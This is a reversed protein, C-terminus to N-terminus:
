RKLEIHGSESKKNGSFEIRYYYTGSPLETNNKSLGSFVVTTNNYDNGEWVLDGWRNFIKVNNKKSDELKDINAIFLIENKGDKNPSVANFVELEGSVEITVTQDTCASFSDCVRIGVEDTGTFSLGTYDIVLNANNDITASAGSSPQSVISLTSLDLNNDPDSILGTLDLTVVEGVTTALESTEIVPPNNNDCQTGGITLTIPARSSECGSEDVAVYYTTTTAVNPTVFSGSQNADASGGTPVTYWRYDGDAAGSATLTFSKTVCSEDDGSTTPPAPTQIATVGISTKGSQCGNDIAVYYTADATLSPTIFTSNVEGAIAIGTPDTFWRYEGDAAGSATLTAPGPTCAIAPSATPPSPPNNMTAVVATRNGECTGNNIAVYYTTNGSLVPTTYTSSTQGAIPTGLTAVTYWRYQGNVGGTASLTVSAPICGTAGTVGPAPPLPNITAVVLTRTSECTGNNIAVYYNTTGTLSPTTYTNNTQGAIPTGLTAVTYWRYQGAAAGTASLIVSGNGCRAAGTTTPPTPITNITAVVLTRTSECPGNNIAVYYNTTTTLTGTTYTANTQGAIPTGLTAVTYWRYQGAAGGAATLTVAGNGCRAGGTTTPPTPITNITAVVLTRNSECTGNNIAVYYNTTTTLSGTTYTANTQGAIPTGLTAVTYWRYQGAAGGAASLTVAGTGCRAAGTTTPATPLPNITLTAVNTFADDVGTGSIRARYSGAGFNGTTNVSLTVTTANSYGGGNTIDIWGVAPDLFQWHYQIAPNNSGLTNFTTTQGDCVTRNTPQTNVVIPPYMTVNDIRSFVNANRYLGQIEFTAIDSLVAVIQAQTAAPGVPDNTTKWYGPVASLEVDLNAWSGFAPATVPPSPYYWISVGANTTLIVQAYALGAGTSTQSVDYRLNGGYYASKNGRFKAPAEYYFPIWLTTAGLVISGPTRGTIYGNPNGGTPSYAFSGPLADPATWGDADAAFDSIVQAFSNTSFAILAVFVCILRCSM